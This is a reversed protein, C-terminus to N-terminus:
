REGATGGQLLEMKRVDLNEDFKCGAAFMIVGRRLAAQNSLNQRDTASLTRDEPVM